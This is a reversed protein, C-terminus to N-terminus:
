LFEELLFKLGIGILIVGGLLEARKQFLGGLRGGLCVGVVSMGFAVVGILIASPLISIEHMCSLSVGVALADISTATALLALRGLSLTIPAEDVEDKLANVVMNGGIFALLGFAVWHDIASIYTLLRSGLFWGLLPMAFQFCGFWLGLNLKQYWSLKPQAIGTSVSVAFADMALSFAILIIYTM